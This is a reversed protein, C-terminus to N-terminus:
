KHANQTVILGCRKYLFMSILLAMKQSIFVNPSGLSLSILKANINENRDRHL